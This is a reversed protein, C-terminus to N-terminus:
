PTYFYISQCQLFPSYIFYKNQSPRIHVCGEAMRSSLACLHSTRTTWWRDVAACGWDPSRFMMQKLEKRVARIFMYYALLFEDRRRGHGDPQVQGQSTELTPCDSQKDLGEAADQRGMSWFQGAWNILANWIWPVETSYGNHSLM